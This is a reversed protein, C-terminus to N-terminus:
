KSLRQLIIRCTLEKRRTKYNMKKKFDVSSFKGLRQQELSSSFLMLNRFDGKVEITYSEITAGDKKSEHPEDLTLIKVKYKERLDDVKNLLNQHFSQDASISNSGLVSDLYNNQQQLFGLKGSANEM